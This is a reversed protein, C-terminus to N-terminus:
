RKADMGSQQRGLRVFDERLVKAVEASPTEYCAKARARVEPWREETVKGQLNRLRHALCRQRAARPFGVEVAKILGPARDTAVLL